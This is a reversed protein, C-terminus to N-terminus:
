SWIHMYTIDSFLYILLCVYIHSVIILLFLFIIKGHIQFLALLPIHSPNSPPFPLSIHLWKLIIEFIFNIFGFSKLFLLEEWNTNNLVIPSYPESLVNPVVKPSRNKSILEWTVTFPFVVCFPVSVLLKRKTKLALFYQHSLILVGNKREFLFLGQKNPWFVM